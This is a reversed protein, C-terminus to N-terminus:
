SSRRRTAFASPCLDRYAIAAGVTTASLVAQTCAAAFCGAAADLIHNLQAPRSHESRFGTETEAPLEHAGTALAFVTDGDFMSHVPRVARAMGDHAM